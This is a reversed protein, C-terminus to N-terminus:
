PCSSSFRRRLGRRRQRWLRLVPRRVHPRPVRGQVQLQLQVSWHSWRWRARERTGPRPTAETRRPKNSATAEGVWFLLYISSPM